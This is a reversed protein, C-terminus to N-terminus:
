FDALFVKCAKATAYVDVKSSIEKPSHMGVLPTGLDITNILLRSLLFAVTGGGGEDVKGLETLQWPVNNDDFLRRLRAIYEADADNSGGKGRSGTYKCMNVGYGLKPANGMEHVSKFNFNVGASVDTSLAYSQALLDRLKLESVGPQVKDAIKSLAHYFFTSDMGTAGRSGTEEKDALFVVATRQPTGKLNFMGWLNGYACVRDDQGYAAIMSRDFGLDRARGAPVVELEASFFDSETMGYDTNLKELVALKVRDKVDEDDVPISGCIINLQEGTIVEGTKKDGQAKAALHPLLDPVMFIPDNDGDGINIEVVSGDKLAVVGVLAMPIQVWQYKKIGGYYHTKLFAMAADGDENLPYPKLDLRPSDVHSAVINFGEDIGKSGIVALLLNKGRNAIYVKDGAKLRKKNEIDTFGQKEAWAVSENVFMRENKCRSLFDMYGDNLTQLTKMETKNFRAWASNKEHVLEKQLKKYRAEQEKM